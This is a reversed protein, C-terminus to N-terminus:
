AALSRINGTSSHMDTQRFSYPVNFEGGIDSGIGLCSGGMALLAGEGDSSGGSSVSKNYLNVTVGYLNNDTELHMM